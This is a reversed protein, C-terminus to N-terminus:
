GAIAVTKKSKSGGLRRMLPKEVLIHTLMGMTLALLAMLLFPIILPVQFHKWIPYLIKGALSLVPLHVLYISYSADGLSKLIGSSRLKGERELSMLGIMAMAASLGYLVSFPGDVQLALPDTTASTLNERLATAAFGLIGIITMATAYPVKREHMIFIVVMGFGFLLHLPSIYQQLLPNVPGHILPYISVALWIALLSFGIRRDLIIVGFVLYFMVEHYLTWAVGLVSEVRNIHLLLISQIIVSSSRVYPEGSAPFVFFQVLVAALVVWYIPYIRKFRKWAYSRLAQSRGVDSWHAHLIVIGSLVFFFEVGSHTFLLYKGWSHHWYKPNVLINECHCLVVLFAAIGRGAQLTTFVKPLSLSSRLGSVSIM